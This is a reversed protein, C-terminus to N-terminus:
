WPPNNSSTDAQSLTNRDCVSEMRLIEWAMEKDEDTVKLVGDNIIYQLGTIEHYNNYM